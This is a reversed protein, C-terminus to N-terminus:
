GEGRSLKMQAVQVLLMQERTGRVRDDGFVRLYPSSLLYFMYLKVSIYICICLDSHIVYVNWMTGEKLEHWRVGILNNTNWM